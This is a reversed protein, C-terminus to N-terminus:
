TAWARRPSPSISEVIMFVRGREQGPLERLQTTKAFLPLKFLKDSM